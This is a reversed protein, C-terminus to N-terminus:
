GHNKIGTIKVFDKYSNEFTFEKSWEWAAKRLKEYRKKDELLEIIKSGLAEPDGAKALLGTKKDWVSDRLGDVDYVVAPTGQSNAETVILGWGEKISTVLIVAAERMLKLREDDSVRGKLAIATAHRSKRVYNILKNAYSSHTDGAIVMSLSMDIDRALEFAKVAHLTRKMPRVGGLSLVIKSQKKPLSSLPALSMGIRFVRVDNFGFRLMDQRSSESETIAFPYKRAIRRLMVPELYYGVISLPFFMQYFWVERALQYALLLKVSGSTYSASMFSITNMEDIVVDEWNQMSERYLARAKYYVSYRNGVRFTEVGEINEQAKSNPYRATIHRVTHGDKVLRDMIQSSVVEAGGASPHRRDKWSFWLINM